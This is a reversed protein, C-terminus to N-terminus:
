VPARGRAMAAGWPRHAVAGELVRLSLPYHDAEVTRKLPDVFAIREEESLDATMIEDIHACTRQRVFAEIWSVPARRRCGSPAFATLSGLVHGFSFCQVGLDVPENRDLLSKLLFKQASGSPDAAAALVARAMQWIPSWIRRRSTSNPCDPTV